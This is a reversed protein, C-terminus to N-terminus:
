LKKLQYDRMPMSGGYLWNPNNCNFWKSGVLESIKAVDGVKIGNDEDASLVEIIEVKDGVKLEM